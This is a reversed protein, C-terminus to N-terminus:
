ECIDFMLFIDNLAKAYNRQTVKLLLRREQRSNLWKGKNLKEKREKEKKEMEHHILDVM